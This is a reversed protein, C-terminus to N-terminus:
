SYGLFVLMVLGGVTRQNHTHTHTHTHARGAGHWGEGHSCEVYARGRMVRLRAHVVPMTSGREGGSGPATACARRRRCFGIGLGPRAAGRRVGPPLGDDSRRPPAAAAGDIVDGDSSRTDGAERATAVMWRWPPAM